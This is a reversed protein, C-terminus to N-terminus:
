RKEVGDHDYDPPTNKFKNTDQYPISVKQFDRLAKINLKGTLVVHNEGGKLRMIDKLATKKPITIRSDGFDSTNVQVFYCHIDRSVSEAINSFYNVDQNYESAVL